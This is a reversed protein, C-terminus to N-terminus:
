EIDILSSNNDEVVERAAAEIMRLTMFTDSSFMYQGNIGMNLESKSTELKSILTKIDGASKAILVYVLNTTADATTWVQLRQLQPKNMRTIIDDLLNVARTFREIQTNNDTLSVSKAEFLATSITM